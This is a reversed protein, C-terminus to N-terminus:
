AAIGYEFQDHKAKTPEVNSSRKDWLDFFHKPAEPLHELKGNDDAELRVAVEFRSYLDEMKAAQVCIDRELGQALWGGNEEQFFIVRIEKSMKLEETRNSPNLGSFM